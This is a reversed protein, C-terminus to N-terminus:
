KSILLQVRLSLYSINELIYTKKEPYKTSFFFKPKIRCTTKLNPSKNQRPLYSFRQLRCNNETFLCCESISRLFHKENSFNLVRERSMNTEQAKSKREILIDFFNQMYICVM